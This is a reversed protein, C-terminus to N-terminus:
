ASEEERMVRSGVQCTESTWLMISACLVSGQM